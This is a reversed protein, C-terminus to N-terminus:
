RRATSPSRAISARHEDEEDTVRVGLRSLRVLFAREGRTAVLLRPREGLAERAVVCGRLRHQRARKQPCALGRPCDCLCGPRHQEDLVEKGRSGGSVPETGRDGLEVAGNGGDAM